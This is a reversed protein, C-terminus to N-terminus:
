LKKLLNLKNVVNAIESDHLRFFNVKDALFGALAANGILKENQSKGFMNQVIRKNSFGILTPYGLQRFAGLNRFIEINHEAKKAFGVGPDIIINWRPIGKFKELNKNIEKMVIDSTNEIEGYNTLNEMTKPTGRMHMMIYPM